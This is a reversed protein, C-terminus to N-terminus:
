SGPHIQGSSVKMQAQHTLTSFKTTTCCHQITPQIMSWYNQEKPPVSFKRSIQEWCKSNDHECVLLGNAHHVTSGYQCQMNYWNNIKVALHVKTCLATNRDCITQRDTRGYTINTFQSWMPQFEEFIIEGNTLRPRESKAVGVHRSQELPFVGLNPGLTVWGGTSKLTPSM